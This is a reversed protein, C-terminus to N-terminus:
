TFRVKKLNGKATLSLVYDPYEALTDRNDAIHLTAECPQGYHDLERATDLYAACADKITGYLAADDLADNDIRLYCKM